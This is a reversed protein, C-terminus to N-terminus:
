RKVPAADTVPMPKPVRRSAVLVISKAPDVAVKDTSSALLRRVDTVQVAKLALEASANPVRALGVRVWIAVPVNVTVDVSVRYLVWIEIGEAAVVPISITKVTPACVLPM